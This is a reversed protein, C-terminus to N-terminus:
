KNPRYLFRFSSEKASEILGQTQYKVWENKYDLVVAERPSEFPNKIDDAWYWTQGVQIPYPKFLNIIQTLIKM